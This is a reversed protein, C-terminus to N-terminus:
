QDLEKQIIKIAHDLYSKHFPIQIKKSPSGWRQDECWERLDIESSWLDSNNSVVLLLLIILRDTAELLDPTLKKASKKSGHVITSRTNYFRKVFKSILRRLNHDSSLIMASRESLTQALSESESFILLSELSIASKIIASELRPEVRSEYLWNLSKLIRQSINENALIYEYLVDFGCINFRRCFRKDINIGKITLEPHGTSSLYRYEPSMIFNTESRFNESLGLRRQLDKRKLVLTTSLVAVKEMIRALREAEQGMKKPDGPKYIEIITQDAFSKARKIYFDNEWSHRTFIRRKRVEDALKDAEFKDLFRVKSRDPFKLEAQASLMWTIRIYRSTYFANLRDM